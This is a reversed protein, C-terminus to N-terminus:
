YIWPRIPLLLQDKHEKIGYFLFRKAKVLGGAGFGMWVEAERGARFDAGTSRRLPVAPSIDVDQGRLLRSSGRIM